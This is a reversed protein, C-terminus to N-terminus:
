QLYWVHRMPCLVFSIQERMKYQCNLCAYSATKRLPGCEWERLWTRNEKTRGGLQVTLDQLILAWLLAFSSVREEQRGSSSYIIGKVGNGPSELSVITSDSIRKYAFM